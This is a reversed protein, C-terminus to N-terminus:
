RRLLAAFSAIRNDLSWNNEQDTRRVPIMAWTSCYDVVM